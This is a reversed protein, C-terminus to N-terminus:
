LEAEASVMWAHKELSGILLHVLDSSTPDAEEVKDHVTRVTDLTRELLRTVLGVVHQVSQEGAPFPDLTTTKAATELRGDPFVRLAVMREAVADTQNRADSAIEDLALHLSRFGPGRVTWHAQKVTVHLAVLDVLVRQLNDALDAPAVFGGSPRASAKPGVEGAVTKHETTTVTM